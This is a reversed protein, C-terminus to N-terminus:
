RRAAGEECLGGSAGREPRAPAVSRQKTFSNICLGSIIAMDCGGAPHPLLIILGGGHLKLGWRWSPRKVPLFFFFM